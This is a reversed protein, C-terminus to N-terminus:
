NTRKRCIFTLDCYFHRFCETQFQQSFLFVQQGLIIRPEAQGKIFYRPASASTYLRLRGDQGRSWPERPPFFLYEWLFLWYHCNVLNEKISIFSLSTTNLLVLDVLVYFSPHQNGWFYGFPVRRVQLLNQFNDRKQAYYQLNIDGM